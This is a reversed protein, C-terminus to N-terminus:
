ILVGDHSCIAQVNISHWGKRNVYTPENDSPAQIRVHTGDICGFVGPFGGRLYFNEKSKKIEEQTPWKLFQDKKTLLANTVNEVARSVKSKDYGMTDGIVEMFSESAFFRLALMVQILHDHYDKKVCSFVQAIGFNLISTNLKRM